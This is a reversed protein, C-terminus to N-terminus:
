SREKQKEFLNKIDLIVQPVESLENIIRFKGCLALLASTKGSLNEKSNLLDEKKILLEQKKEELLMSGIRFIGFLLTLLILYYDNVIGFLSFLYKMVFFVFILIIPSTFIVRRTRFSM